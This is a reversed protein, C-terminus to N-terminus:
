SRILSSGKMAAPQPLDMLELMTPAVDELGAVTRLRTADSGCLIAPVPNTTHATLPTHTTADTNLEANGHDATVFAIGGSKVVADVCRGVCADVTEIAKITAEMQGTHGVMDANAFNIVIFDDSHTDLREILADSVQEASMEPHMDYTAVKPSPVLMRDEGKFAQERGGNFFYTVHAYKETEAAHFQSGGNESIIEAVTQTIDAKPFAVAVDLARDYETLTVVHLNHITRGRDFDRFDADAFAHALQRVRDPRFNFFIIVDNDRIRIRDNASEAISMPKVFEDFEGKAYSETIYKSANPHVAHEEATLMKYVSATRDWRSDRDMAYFRGALSVIKYPGIESLRSQFSEIQPVASQPPKDRGDTFAHVHVKELGLKHALRAVALATGEHSHVDGPSVLGLLHLSSKRALALEIAQIVTENEYFTGSSIEHLQRSLGERVIRGSGITLHGIESNGMQGEPLGVAQGSAALQTHPWRARLRDFSPTNAQRIANGFTEAREGWGDCIILVFPKQAKSM